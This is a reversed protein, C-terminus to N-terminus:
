RAKACIYADYRHSWKMAYGDPIVYQVGDLNPCVDDLDVPGFDAAAAPAIALSAVLAALVARM